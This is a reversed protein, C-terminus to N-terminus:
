VSHLHRVRPLPQRPEHMGRGADVGLEFAARVNQDWGARTQVKLPVARGVLHETDALRDLLWSGVRDLAFGLSEVPESGCETMADTARLLPGTLADALSM